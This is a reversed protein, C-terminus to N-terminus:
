GLFGLFGLFILFIVELVDLTSFPIVFTVIVTIFRVGLRKGLMEPLFTWTRM